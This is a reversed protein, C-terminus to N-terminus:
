RTLLERVSRALRKSAIFEQGNSLTIRWRQSSLANMKRVHDVNILANRRIRRFNSTGLREELSRLTMTALYKNRMTFIWVMDGEAQFAFVEDSGLLFYEEGARGVIKRPRPGPSLDSVEQLHALKEAAERGGIRRAREVADVLCEQGVPKLLYDIAGAEFAQLAYQDYATVIIIVPMHPGQPLKRVVELGGMGPMQLDLLVLDPKCQAIQDLAVKGNDAEGVIEVDAMCELEERLVKRAIPEDDVILTKLTMSVQTTFIKSVVLFGYPRVTKTHAPATTLETIYFLLHAPQARCDLDQASGAVSLWV